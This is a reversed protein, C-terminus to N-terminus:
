QEKLGALNRVTLKTDATAWAQEFERQVMQASTEKGQRRLSEALGYLARGNRQHKAIEARFVKEAEANDGNLLLVAGFIERVPLDWDAPENYHVADDAEV